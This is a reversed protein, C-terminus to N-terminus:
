GPTRRPLYNPRSPDPLFCWPRLPSRTPKCSTPHFNKWTKNLRPSSRHAQSRRRYTRHRAVSSRAVDGAGFADTEPTTLTVEFACAAGPRVMADTAYETPTTKSKTGGNSVVLSVSPDYEIPALAVSEAPTRAAGAKSVILVTLESGAMGKTVLWLGPKGRLLVLPQNPMCNVVPMRGKVTVLIPRMHREPM